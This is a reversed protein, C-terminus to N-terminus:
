GPCSREFKSKPRACALKRRGDSAASGGSAQLVVAVVPDPYLAIPALLEDLGAPSLDVDPLQIPQQQSAAQEQSGNQQASGSTPPPSTNQDGTAAQQGGSATKGRSCGDLGLPSVILCFSSLWTLFVQFKRM